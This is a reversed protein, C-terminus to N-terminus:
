SKCDEIKEMTDFVIINFNGEEGIIYGNKGDYNHLTGIVVTHGFMDFMKGYRYTTCKFVDGNKM